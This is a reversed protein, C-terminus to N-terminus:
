PGLFATSSEFQYAKSSISSTTAKDHTSSSAIPFDGRSLFDSNKPGLSPGAVHAQYKFRYM